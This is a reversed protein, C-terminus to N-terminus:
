TSHKFIEVNLTEKFDNLWPTLLEEVSTTNVATPPPPGKAKEIKDLSDALEKQWPDFLAFLTSQVKSVLIEKEIVKEFDDGYRQKYYPLFKEEYTKLDFRGEPFLSKDTRITTAIEDDAVTLGLSQAFQCLVERQILQQLVNESLFSSFNEPVNGKLNGRMREMAADVTMQFKRKPIGTKGVVAIYIQSEYQKSAVRTYGFFLMFSLIILTLATKVLWSSSHKRLTDLM